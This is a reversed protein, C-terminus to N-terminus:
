PHPRDLYRWSMLFRALSGSSVRDRIYYGLVYPLEPTSCLPETCKM